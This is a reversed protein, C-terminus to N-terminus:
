MPDLLIEVQKLSAIEQDYDKSELIRWTEKHHISESPEITRMPSLTEHELMDTNTYIEVSCGFDPYEGAVREFQKLFALGEVVYAVWNPNVMTGIKIPTGAKPDQRVLVHDSKIELREDSLDTYPWISIRRDPLLGEEDVKSPKLPALACGYQRMVSLAWCGLSIPWGGINRIPHTVLVSGDPNPEIRIEKQVSNEPEPNGHIIVSDEAVDVKVPKNDLSYSRPKSEPSSWLRHGGYIRWTGEGTQMEAEPLIGFLNFDPRKVSALYLIRPGIEIPVGFLMDGLTFKYSRFGSIETDEIKM